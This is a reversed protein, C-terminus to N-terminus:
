KKLLKFAHRWQNKLFGPICWLMCLPEIARAASAGGMDLADWGFQACVDAVVAKAPADNYRSLGVRFAAYDAESALAGLVETFAPLDRPNTILVNEAGLTMFTYVLLYVLIITFGIALVSAGATSAVNLAWFREPYNFYRRPMGQNGLLFQPLLAAAM